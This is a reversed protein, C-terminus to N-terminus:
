TVRHESARESAARRRFIQKLNPRPRTAVPVARICYARHFQVYSSRPPPSTVSARLADRFNPCEQETGVARGAEAGRRALPVYSILRHHLTASGGSGGGWGLRAGRRPALAAFGSSVRPWRSADDNAARGVPKCVPPRAGDQRCHSPPLTMSAFPPPFTGGSERGAPAFRETPTPSGTTGSREVM